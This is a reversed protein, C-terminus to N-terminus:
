KLHGFHTKNNPEERLSHFLSNEKILNLNRFFDKNENFNLRLHSFRISNPSSSM